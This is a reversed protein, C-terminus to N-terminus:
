LLELFCIFEVWFAIDNGEDGWSNPSGVASILSVEESKKLVSTNTDVHFLTKCDEGKRFLGRNGKWSHFM